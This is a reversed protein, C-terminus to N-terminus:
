KLGERGDDGSDGNMVGVRKWDLSLDLFGEWKM